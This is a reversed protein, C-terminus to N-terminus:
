GLDQNFRNQQSSKGQDKESSLKYTYMSGDEVASIEEPNGITGRQHNGIFYQTDIESVYKVRSTPSRKSNDFCYLLVAGHTFQCGVSNEFVNDKLTIGGCKPDNGFLISSSGVKTRINLVNADTLSSSNIFSNNMLLFSEARDYVPMPNRDINIIGKFGTHNAFTNNLLGLKKKHNMINM